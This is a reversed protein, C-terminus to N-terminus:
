NDRAALRRTLQELRAAVRTAEDDDLPVNGFRVREIIKFRTEDTFEPDHGLEPTSNSSDNMEKGEKTEPLTTDM